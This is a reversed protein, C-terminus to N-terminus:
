KIKSYMDFMPLLLPIIVSLVIGGLLLILVPELISTLRDLTQRVDADAITAIHDLTKDANGILEGVVLLEAMIPPMAGSQKVAQGLTMGNTILDPVLRLRRALAENTLLGSAADAANLVPVGSKMMTGLTRTYQALERNQILLGFVPMKLLLEHVALRFRQSRQKAQSFGVLGLLLAGFVIYWNALMFDSVSLLARTQWPLESGLDAFMGAFNPVIFLTMFAALGLAMTLVVTPYIMASKFKRSINDEAEFQDALLKLGGPLDGAMESVHIMQVAIRPFVKGQAALARSLTHGAQVEQIMKTLVNSVTGRVTGALVQLSQLIPVGGDLLLHLLHFLVAQQRMDLKPPGLEMNWNFNLSLSPKVSDVLLGQMKLKSIAAALAPAEIEGTVVKGGTAYARYRYQM